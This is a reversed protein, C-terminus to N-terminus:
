ETHITLNAMKIKINHTFNYQTYIFKVVVVGGEGEKMEGGGKGM